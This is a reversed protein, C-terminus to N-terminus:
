CSFTGAAPARPPVLCNILCLQRASAHGRVEIEDLFRHTKVRSAFRSASASRQPISSCNGALSMWLTADPAAQLIDVALMARRSVFCGREIVSSRWAGGKVGCMLSVVHQPPCLLISLIRGPLDSSHQACREVGCAMELTHKSWTDVISPTVKSNDNLVGLVCGSGPAPLVESVPSAAQWQYRASGVEVHRHSAPHLHQPLYVLSETQFLLLHALM